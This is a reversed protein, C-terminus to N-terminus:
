GESSRAQLSTGITYVVQLQRAAVKHGVVTRPSSINFKETPPYRNRHFVLQENLPWVHDSCM